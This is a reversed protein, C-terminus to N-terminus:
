KVADSLLAVRVEDNRQARQSGGYGNVNEWVTLAIQIDYQLNLVAYALGESRFRFSGLRFYRYLFRLLAKSLGALLGYKSAIGIQGAAEIEAYTITKRTFSVCSEDQFVHLSNSNHARLRVMTREDFVIGLEDHIKTRTFDIISKKYFVCVCPVRRLFAQHVISGYRWYIADNYLATKKGESAVIDFERLLAPPYFHSCLVHLVYETMCKSYAFKLIEPWMGEIQRSTDTYTYSDAPRRIFNINKEKCFAETGDTSGGDFVIIRCFGDLNQFVFPLRREENFTFVMATINENM